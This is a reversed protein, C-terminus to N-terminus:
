EPLIINKKQKDKALIVADTHFSKAANKHPNYNNKMSKALM